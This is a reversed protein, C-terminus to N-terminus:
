LSAEYEAKGALFDDYNSYFHSYEQTLIFYLDETSEPACVAQLSALSPSCIPGAPLGTVVYTNYPSDTDLLDETVTAGPDGLAYAVTVDLQLKMNQALRNYLVGAIHTRDTEYLCEKEVLSAMITVDTASLGQSTAYSYDLSATETQYQSLMMRIVTDATAGQPVSYTKPFLFGELSNNYAGSLFPYETSYSDAQSCLNLFDSASIGYAEEVAAATQEVTYGEPITLTIAANPGSKLLSLVDSYDSGTIFLYSGPKLSSEANQDSAYTVFSNASDIVGNKALLEAIAGTSSGEPITINVEQGAEIKNSGTLSVVVCVVAVVLAVAVVAAVVIAAIRKNRNQEYREAKRAGRNHNHSFYNNSSSPGGNGGNSSGRRSFSNPQGGDYPEYYGEDDYGDDYSGTQSDQSSTGSYPEFYVSDEEDNGHARGRSNFDDM